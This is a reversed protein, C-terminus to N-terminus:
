KPLLPKGFANDLMDQAFLPGAARRHERVPMRMRIDAVRSLDAIVGVIVVAACDTGIVRMVAISACLRSCFAYTANNNNNNNSDNDNHNHSYNNNIECM